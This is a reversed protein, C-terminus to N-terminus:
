NKNFGISRTFIKEYSDLSSLEIYRVKEAVQEMRSKEKISLLSLLAGTKSSNGIYEIKNLLREPLIGLGTLSEAKMHSGFQGAIIIKDLHSEEIEMSNLLTTFGSSLAAKALQVQRIDEQTIVVESNEERFLVFQRKGDIDEIRSALKTLGMDMLETSSKLRGSKKIISNKNLEDVVEIIGSGCLGTPTCNGIVKFTIEEKDSDISVGEIAGKSARMGCKINAGELAPGAACSCSTLEGDNLMIMEGNTGIDIFFINEKREDLGSVVAGAVIDGGIYSSVSPVCYVRGFPSIKLGIDRSKINKAMCFINTYPYKGISKPNVGLFLHIMTSNAAVSVEYINEPNIGAKNCLSLMMNNICSVIEQQLIDIGQEHNTIYDIRSLVDLGFKKQPNICTDSVVEEGRILDVVAVVVTTTGIDIALGYSVKETDGREIGILEENHFVATVKEEGILKGMSKLLDVDNVSTKSGFESYLKEEYSNYIKEGKNQGNVAAKRISPNFQFEPLFGKSLGEYSDNESVLEEVTIDGKPHVFCGLRVGAKIEEEKLFRLEEAGPSNIKGSVIRIKCKGCVGKGGCPNELSIKSRVINLLSNGDEYEIYMDRNKVYVKSIIVM